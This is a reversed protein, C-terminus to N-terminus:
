CGELVSGFEAADRGFDDAAMVANEDGNLVSSVSRLIREALVSQQKALVLQKASAGSAAMREVVADNESQLEPCRMRSVPLWTTSIVWPRKAPLCPSPIRQCM